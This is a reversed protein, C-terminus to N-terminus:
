LAARRESFPDSKLTGRLENIFFLSFLTPSDEEEGLCSLSYYDKKEAEQQQQLCM